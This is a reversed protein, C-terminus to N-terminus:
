ISIELTSVISAIALKMALYRALVTELYLVKEDGTAAATTLQAGDAMKNREEQSFGSIWIVIVIHTGMCLTGVLVHTLGSIPEDAHRQM